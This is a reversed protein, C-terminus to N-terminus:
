YHCHRHSRAVNGTTLGRWSIKATVCGDPSRQIAKTSHHIWWAAQAGVAASCASGVVLGVIPNAIVVYAAAGCNLGILFGIFAQDSISRGLRYAERTSRVAHYGTCSSWGCDVVLRGIKVSPDAVLPYASRPQKPVNMKLTRGNRSLEFSVDLQEGHADVVWAPAITGYYAVGSDETVLDETVYVHVSGDEAIELTAKEGDVEFRYTFNHSQNRASITEMIRISQETSELVVSEGYKARTGSTDLNNRSARTTIRKMTIVPQGDIDPTSIEVVGAEVSVDPDDILPLPDVLAVPDTRIADNVLIDLEDDVPLNEAQEISAVAEEQILKELVEQAAEEVTQGPDEEVAAPAICTMDFITKAADRYRVIYDNDANGTAFEFSNKLKKIHKSGNTDKMQRVHYTSGRSDMDDWSLNGGDNECHGDVVTAPTAAAAPAVTLGTVFLLASLWVAMMRKVKNM